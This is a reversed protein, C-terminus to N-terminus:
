QASYYVKGPKTQIKKYYFLEDITVLQFGKKTLYPALKEVAEATSPYLDHMLVIDGDQIKKCRKVVKNANRSKWDESDVSWYYMPTKITKRMTSSVNGYPPRLATTDIGIVGRVLKNTKNIESKIKKASMESLDKHDYTHSGIQNGQQYEQLLTDKYMDLRSGVVFFTARGNSKQLAKLIRGTVKTYPGDDFTLAVMPKSADLNKRIWRDKGQPEPTPEPTIEPTPAATEEAAVKLPQKDNKQGKKQAQPTDLMIAKVALVVIIIGLAIAANTIILGRGQMRAKQERKSRERLSEMKNGDNEPKM